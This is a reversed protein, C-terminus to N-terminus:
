GGDDRGVLAAIEAAWRRSQIRSSLQLPDKFLSQL